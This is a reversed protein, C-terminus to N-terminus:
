VGVEPDAHVTILRFREIVDDLDNGVPLPAPSAGIM